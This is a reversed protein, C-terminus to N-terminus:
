QVTEKAKDDCGALVEKRERRLFDIFISKADDM